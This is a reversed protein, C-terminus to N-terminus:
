GAEAAEGWLRAKLQQARESYPAIDLCEKVLRRAEYAKGEEALMEALRLLNGAERKVLGTATVLVARLEDTRGAEDLLRILPQYAESHQPFRSVLERGIRESDEPRRVRLMRAAWILELLEADDAASARVAEDMALSKHGQAQLARALRFRLGAFEPWREQAAVVAQQAGAGDGAAILGDALVLWAERREPEAEVVQRATGAAAKADGDQLATVASALLRSVPSSDDIYLEAFRRVIKGIFAQRVHVRDSDWVLAPASLTVSEYSPFYDVRERAEAAVDCATRLVSKSYANAIRVDRGSFTQTLPVPSVTLVIRSAPNHARVIDIAALLDALAQEYGVVELRFREPRSLVRKNAPGQIWMGTELDRWAEVLGPTMMVADASFAERFVEYIQQRRELFRERTVTTQSALELDFVQGDRGEIALPACHEWTVTGGSDAVARTWALSQLFAGPSFKNLATTPPGHWEGAPLRFDLMPVRCGLTALHTEINRAFCSGITFVTEGSGIRFSPRVEPWVEGDLTGAIDAWRHPAEGALNALAAKMPLARSHNSPSEPM